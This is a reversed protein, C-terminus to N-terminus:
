NRVVAVKGAKISGEKTTVLYIYIGSAVFEDDDNSGDWSVRAGLVESRPISKVLYGDETFINVSSNLALNDIYFRSQKPELIFPNPYGKVSDLNNAPKTFPTEFRSLGNTTGVYIDGSEENFAFSTVFDSVLESNSTTYHKWSFNDSDLVSLGGATGIWKNNRPDVYLAQINDNIVSYRVGIDSGFWYNLGDATGIWVTGDLDEEVANIFNSELGESKDLYQSLDDDGSDFPTENDDVVSLGNGATGIWKRGFRDIELTVTKDSRIGETTTWHQWGIDMDFVDLVQKNGASHNLFWMFGQADRQLDTIVVYAPSGSIGSLNDEMAGLVTVKISDDDMKEFMTIGGGWSGAWIRNFNDIEITRFDYHPLGNTRNFNRWKEGNYYYVGGTPNKSSTAWLHGDNDILLDSFTNSGPGDSAVIVWDTVDEDYYALAESETGLWLEDQDTSCVHNVKAGANALRSWTGSSEKFYVGFNSALVIHNKWICLDRIQHDTQEPSSWTQGDFFTLGAVTGAAVSNDYSVLATVDNSPLGSAMNFQQWANPIQKNIFDLEIRRLGNNQAAWIYNDAILLERVPGIEAKWTREWHNKSDLRLEAVGIDSGILVFDDHPLISSIVLRNQFENYADWEETELNYIQLLGDPLAIWVFGRPDYAVAVIDIQALGETNTFKDVQHSASNIKLVGGNTACWITSDSISIQRIESASTFTQWNGPATYSIFPILCLLLSLFRKM